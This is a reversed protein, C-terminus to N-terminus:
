SGTEGVGYGHLRVDDNKFELMLIVAQADNSEM